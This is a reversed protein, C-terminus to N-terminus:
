VEGAKWRETFLSGRRRDRRRADRDVPHRGAAPRATADPPSTRTTTWASARYAAPRSWAAGVGEVVREARGAHEVKRRRLALLLDQLPIEVPCAEMCAGCLSPAGAPEAAHPESKALLPTLVAGMPGPVGVRMRTAAPRATCRASTSVPAAVSATSCRPSSPGPSTWAFGNDLIVLHFEDPGDVEGPRRFGTVDVHLEVAGARHGGQGAVRPDPRGAGVHRRGARRGDGAVHVRPLSTVMRGNGENTVLM